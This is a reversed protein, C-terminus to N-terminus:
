FRFVNRKQPSWATWARTDKEMEFNSNIKRHERCKVYDEKCQLIIWSRIIRIESPCGRCYPPCVVKLHFSCQRWLPTIKSIVFSFFFYCVLSSNKSVSHLFTQFKNTNQKANLKITVSLFTRPNPCVFLRYTRQIFIRYIFTACLADRPLM